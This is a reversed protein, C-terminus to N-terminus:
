IQPRFRWVHHTFVRFTMFICRYVITDLSKPPYLNKAGTPTFALSPSLWSQTSFNHETKYSMVLGGGLTATVNLSGIDTFVLQYCPLWHDLATSEPSELWYANSNWSHNGDKQYNPSCGKM